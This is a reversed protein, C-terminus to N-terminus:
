RKVPVYIDEIKLIKTEMLMNNFRRQEPIPNPGKAM